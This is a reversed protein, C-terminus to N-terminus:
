FLDPVEDTVSPEDDDLERQMDLATVFQSVRDELMAIYQDDRPIRQVYLPQTTHEPNYSIYDCFAKDAIWLGGQVQPLHEPPMGTQLTRAHVELRYPCKIEITGHRTIGDLSAGVRLGLPHRWFGVEEVEEYYAIEYAARAKPETNRGHAMAPSDFDNEQIWALAYDRGQELAYREETLKQFYTNRVAVTGLVDKFRSATVWGLRALLWEPSGQKAM